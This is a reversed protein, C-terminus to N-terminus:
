IGLMNRDLRVLESDTRGIELWSRGIGMGSWNGIGVWKRNVGVLESWTGVLNWGIESWNQIGVLESWIRSTESWNGVLKQRIRVVERDIGLDSWSGILEWKGGFGVLESCNRSLGVVKRGIGVHLGIESWNRGFGILKQGIELWNGVL